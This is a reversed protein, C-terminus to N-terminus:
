PAVNLILLTKAWVRAGQSRSTLYTDFVTILIPNTLSGRSLLSWTQRPFRAAPPFNTNKRIMITMNIPSPLAYPNSPIKFNDLPHYTAFPHSWKLPPLQDKMVGHLSKLKAITPSSLQIFHNFFPAPFRKYKM